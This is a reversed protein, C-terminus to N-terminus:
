RKIRKAVDTEPLSWCASRGGCPGASRALGSPDTPGSKPMRMRYLGPGFWKSGQRLRPVQEVGHATRGYDAEARLLDVREDKGFAGINVLCAVTVASESARRARRPREAAAPRGARGGDAGAPWEAARRGRDPERRCAGLGAVQASEAAELGGGPQRAPGPTAARGPAVTSAPGRRRQGGPRPGAPRGARVASAAGGPRQRRAAPVAAPGARVASAPGARPESGAGAGRSRGAIGAAVPGRDPQPGGAARGSQGARGAAAPGHHPQRGPGTRGAVDAGGAAGLRGPRQTTAFPTAPAGAPGAGAPGGGCRGPEAVRACAPRGAAAPGGAPQLRPRSGEPQGGAGARVSGPDRRQAGDASGARRAGAPEGSRRSGQGAGGRDRAQLAPDAIAPLSVARATLGAGPQKGPKDAVVEPLRYARVRDAEWSTSLLTGGGSWLGTPDTDTEGAEIDRAPDRSGDSLRYAYVRERWDAVWLTEGNAWLGVPMLNGGALKVDRGAERRGDSLRYAHVTDGLWDAVWATEGDSWVGAPATNAELALDRAALRSGDALRHARLGGGLGAVWLAEGDSWLGMPAPDTAIDKGPQREGDSRRYAYLRADDLDAVWATEGDSWIGSPSSNQPALPFGEGQDESGPGEVTANVAQWLGRGGATCIAGEAACNTTVPLALVVDADSSPEVTIEWRLNSPRALRRAWRVAGGTVQFATDRLTVYSIEIEESFRLEFKFETEGDHTAPMGAFQATLAPPEGDTILVRASGIESGGHSATIAVTEAEEATGDDVARVTATASNAGARLRLSGASVTFDSGETATSGTFDLAISQDEAFTVGNTISVRITASGGELVEAPDVSLAFEPTADRSASNITVTASGIPVGGHSATITVTEAAEEEQDPAARLRATASFRPRTSFAYLRLTEPVGSYDSASATGSVALTITEPQQFTVGNTIAVTVTASEGEAIEAPEVSVAFEPFDNEELVVAASANEASVTYGEGAGLTWTVTVDDQVRTNDGAQVRKTVSSQGPPLRVTLTRVRESTNSTFLVQVDLPGATPGTRSVAFRALEAESVREAVAVISVVPLAARTVTVTYAKTTTADEATVTVVIENSGIALNVESGPEVSVKAASNTATATVTTTEVSNGVSAQYSAVAGSFTGIDIGALSLSGLTADHSISNITVTASGIASGGRSATVTVTEAQEEEQDVAAALTATVSSAGAALTLTEPGVTYDSGSATGSAALSITQAEAFTVGNSIAM